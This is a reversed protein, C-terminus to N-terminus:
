EAFASFQLARLATIPQGDPRTEQAHDPRGSTGCVAWLAKPQTGLARPRTKCRKASEFGSGISYRRLRARLFLVAQLHNRFTGLCARGPTPQPRRNLCFVALAKLPLCLRRLWFLM